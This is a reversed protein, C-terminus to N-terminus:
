LLIIFGANLHPRRPIKNGGFKLLFGNCNLVNTQMLIFVTEFQLLLFYIPCICLLASEVGGFYICCAGAAYFKSPTLVFLDASPM